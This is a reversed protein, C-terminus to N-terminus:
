QGGFWPEIATAVTLSGATKTTAPVTAVYVQPAQGTDSSFGLQTGSVFTPFNDIAGPDGPHDTLQTPAASGAVPFTFIRIANSAIRADFAGLTGDPSVVVRNAIDIAETGLSSRISTAQGTSLEIREIQTFTTASSGAPAIIATGNSVFFPAGYSFSGSPSLQQFGGGQANVLGIRAAGGSDYTFAIQSGNPSFVPYRFNTKTSDSDIITSPNSNPTTSVTMVTTANGASHVFVV